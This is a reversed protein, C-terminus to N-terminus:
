RAEKERTTADLPRIRAEIQRKHARIEAIRVEVISDRARKVRAEWQAKCISDLEPKRRQVYDRFLSDILMRDRHVLTPPPPDTCGSGFWMMLLSLWSAPPLRRKGGSRQFSKENGLSM